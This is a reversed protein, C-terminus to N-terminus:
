ICSGFLLEPHLWCDVLLKARAAYSRLFPIASNVHTWWSMWINRSNAKMSPLHQHRYYELSNEWLDKTIHAEAVSCGFDYFSSKEASKLGNHYQIRGWLTGNLNGIVPKTPLGLHDLPRLNQPWMRIDRSPRGLRGVMMPPEIWLIIM